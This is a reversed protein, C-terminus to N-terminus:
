KKKVPVLAELAGNELYERGYIELSPADMRFEYDPQTGIWKEYLYTYAASLQEIAQVRCGAYLGAPLTVKKLGQPEPLGPTLPMAAWYDFTGAQMDVVFSLGYSDGQPQEFPKGSLEPMRHVFDKEWLRSCDEFARTMDTRVVLGYLLMEPRESIRVDFSSQPM